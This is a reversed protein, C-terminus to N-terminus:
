GTRVEARQDRHVRPDRSQGEDRARELGIRVGAVHDLEEGVRGGIGGAMTLALDQDPRDAHVGVARFPVKVPSKAVESRVPWTSVAVAVSELPLLESNPCSTVIAAPVNGCLKM